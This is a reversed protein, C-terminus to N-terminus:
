NQFLLLWGLMALIASLTAYALLALPSQIKKTIGFACLSTHIAIALAVGGVICFMWDPFYAGLVNIAPSQACGSLLGATLLPVLLAPKTM